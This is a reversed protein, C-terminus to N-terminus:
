PIEASDSPNFRFLHGNVGAQPQWGSATYRAGTVSSVNGLAGLLLYGITNELRPIIDVQGAAFAGSKFAGTPVIVGGMELPLVQQIQNGFGMLTPVRFRYWNHSGVTFTGDGVKASQPAISFTVGQAPVSM